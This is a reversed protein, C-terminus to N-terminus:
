TKEQLDNGRCQNTFAIIAISNRRSRSKDRRRGVRPSDEPRADADDAECPGSAITRSAMAEPATSLDRIASFVPRARVVTSAEM